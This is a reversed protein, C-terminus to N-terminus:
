CSRPTTPSCPTSTARSHRRQRRAAATEWPEARNGLCSVAVGIYTATAPVRDRYTCLPAPDLWGYEDRHREHAIGPLRYLLHAPGPLDDDHDVLRTAAAVAYLDIGDYVTGTPYAYLFGVAWPAVPRDRRSM